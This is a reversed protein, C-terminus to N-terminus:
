EDKVGADLQFERVTARSYRHDLWRALMPPPVTVVDAGANLARTIDAPARISGILLQTPFHHRRLLAAIDTVLCEPSGGEDGVRGWLLSAYRAGAKAAALAQGTSLCATANVPIGSSGLTTMVDLNPRGEPSIVPVKIVINEARAALTRAQEVMEDHCGGSVQVSLDRPGIRRALAGVASTWDEIRSKKLLTPNTTVGDIIGHPLWEEVASLDPTDLFIKM